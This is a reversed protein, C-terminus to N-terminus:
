SIIPQKLELNYALDYLHCSVVYASEDFNLVWARAGKQLLLLYNGVEEQVKKGAVKWISDYKM